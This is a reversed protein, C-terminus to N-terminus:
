NIILLKLSAKNITKLPLDHIVGKRDEPDHSPGVSWCYLLLVRATLLFYLM